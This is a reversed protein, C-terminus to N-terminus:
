ELNIYALILFTYTEMCIMFIMDGDLEAIPNLVSPQVGLVILFEGVWAYFFFIMM